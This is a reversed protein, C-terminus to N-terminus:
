VSWRLWTATPLSMQKGCAACTGIVRKRAASTYTFSGAAIPASCHLCRVSRRSAGETAKNATKATVTARTTSTTILPM